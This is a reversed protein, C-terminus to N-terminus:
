VKLLSVVPPHVIPVTEEFTEDPACNPNILTDFKMTAGAKNQGGTADMNDYSYEEKEGNEKNGKSKSTQNSLTVL